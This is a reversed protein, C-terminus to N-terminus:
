RQRDTPPLAPAVAEIKSVLAKADDLLDLLAGDDPDLAEVRVIELKLADLQRELSRRYAARLRSYVGVSVDKPRRSPQLFKRVAAPSLQAKRAIAVVTETDTAHNGRAANFLSKTIECAREVPEPGHLIRYQENPM